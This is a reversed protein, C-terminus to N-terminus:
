GRNKYCQTYSELGPTNVCNIVEKLLSGFRRRIVDLIVDIARLGCDEEVNNCKHRRNINM